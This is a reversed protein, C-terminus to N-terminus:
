SIEPALAIKRFHRGSELVALALWPLTGVYVGSWHLLPLFYALGGVFGLLAGTRARQGRAAVALLAVGIPALWWIDHDPFALWVCLGGVVSVVSAVALPLRTTSASPRPM